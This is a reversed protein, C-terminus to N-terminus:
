LCSCIGCTITSFCRSLIGRKQSELDLQQQQQQLLLPHASDMTRYNAVGADSLMPQASRYMNQPNNSYRKNSMRRQPSPPPPPQQQKINSNQRSPSQYGAATQGQRHPQRYVNSRHEWGKGENLLMWDYMGDDTEGLSDLVKDFLEKM